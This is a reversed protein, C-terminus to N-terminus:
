SSTLASQYFDKHISTIEVTDVLRGANSLAISNALSPSVRTTVVRLRNAREIESRQFCTSSSSVCLTFKM